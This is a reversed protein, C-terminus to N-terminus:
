RSSMVSPPMSHRKKRTFGLRRLQRGVTAVSLAIGRELQYQQALEFRTADPQEGLLTCLLSLGLEDVLSQPRGRNALPAICGTRRRRSVWRNVTAEGVGFREAIRAFSDNANEYAQVVRERLDM